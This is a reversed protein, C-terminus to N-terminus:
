YCIQLEVGSGLRERYSQKLASCALLADQNNAACKRPQAHIPILRPEPAQDTLPVGNKMKEINKAPHFDDADLFPWGLSQALLKGVKTKGSGTVGMVLVIM